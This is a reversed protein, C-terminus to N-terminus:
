NSSRKLSDIAENWAAQTDESWEPGLLSGFTDRIVEFFSEFREAPVGYGEHTGREAFMVNAAVHSGELHHILCEIAQQLMSGRVGGDQDLGFLPEFEPYRTFLAQYVAPAPDIGRGALRELSDFILEAATM